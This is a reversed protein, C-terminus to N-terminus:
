KANLLIWMREFPTVISTHSERNKIKVMEGSRYHKVVQDAKYLTDLPPLGYSKSWILHGTEYNKVAVYYWLSLIGDDNNSM